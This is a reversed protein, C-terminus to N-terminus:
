CHEDRLISEPACLLVALGDEGVRLIIEPM